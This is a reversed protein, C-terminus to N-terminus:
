FTKYEQCSRPQFIWWYLYSASVYGHRMWTENPCPEHVILPIWGSLRVQYNTFRSSHSWIQIFPFTFIDTIPAIELIIVENVFLGWEHEMVVESWRNGQVQSLFYAHAIHLLITSHPAVFFSAACWHYRLIDRMLSLSGLEQSLQFSFLLVRALRFFIMHTLSLLLCVPISHYFTM